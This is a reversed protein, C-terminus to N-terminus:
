IVYVIKMLGHNINSCNTLGLSEKASIKINGKIDEWTRKKDESDSINELATFRVSIEIHHQKKVKTENLTWLNFREV